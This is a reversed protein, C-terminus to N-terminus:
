RILKEKAAAFHACQLINPEFYGGRLPSLTYGRSFATTPIGRPRMLWPTADLLHPAERLNGGWGERFRVLPNGLM